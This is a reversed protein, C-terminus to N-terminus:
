KAKKITAQIVPLYTTSKVRHVKKTKNNYSDYSFTLKVLMNFKDSTEKIEKPVEFTLYFGNRVLRHKLYKFNKPMNNIAVETIEMKTPMNDVKVGLTATSGLTFDYKAELMAWSFGRYFQWSRIFLLSDSPVLHTYAFAQMYEDCPIVQHKIKGATAIIKVESASPIIVKNSTISLSTAQSGAPITDVEYFRFNDKSQLELKIPENFNDIRDIIFNVPTPVNASISYASATTYIRFNPKLNDVRLYYQHRFSGLNTTDSVTITYKRGKVPTFELRSDAAHLTTGIRKKPADDNRAIVKGTSDKVTILTDIPSGLSRAFTEAVITKDSNATFSINHSQNQKKITGSAIFPFAFNNIQNDAVKLRKLEPYEKFPKLAFAQALKTPKAEIRYVFDERGRYLADRIKLTYIGTKPATFNLVPDPNFLYDDALAISRNQDDFVELIAQFHGPVGDGLFPVLERAKVSFTIKEKAKAKFVFVDTKGPFIQGNIVCPIKFEPTPNIIEKPKHGRKTPPQFRPEKIEPLNNIYFPIPNSIWNNNAYLRLERKGLTANKDIELEVIFMQSISPSMQLSNRPVFLSRLLQEFELPSLKDLMDYTKHVRWEKRQEEPPLPPREPNGATIKYVWNILYRKQSGLPNPMGPMNKFKKVKIGDGTVHVGKVGWLGQGGLLFEVTTGRQVGAPYIYGINAATAIVSAFLLLSSFIIKHSM